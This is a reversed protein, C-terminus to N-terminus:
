RVGRPRLLGASLGSEITREAERRGLGIQMAASLLENRIVQPDLAGTAAVRGLAYASANLDDNRQGPTAALLRDLQGTLAKLGYVPGFRRPGRRVSGGQEPPAPHATLADVIWDPLRQPRRILDARYLQGRTVSGAGVVYGGHGRTDIRWGLKGATNGLQAADPQRYYLHQGGSPTTVTWTRPLREGADDALLDLVDRGCTAGRGNWPEPVRESTDKPQDLDIVLLNSPGTAVGINYPAETWWQTIQDPDTTAAHPWDEIAPKKSGPGLPFVALGRAAHWHAARALRGPRKMGARLSRNPTGPSTNM